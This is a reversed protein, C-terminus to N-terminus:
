IDLSQSNDNIALDIRFGIQKILSQMRMYYRLKDIEDKVLMTDIKLFINEFQLEEVMSKLANILRYDTGDGVCFESLEKVTTPNLCSISVKLTNAKYKDTSQTLFLICWKTM